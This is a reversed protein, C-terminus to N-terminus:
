KMFLLLMKVLYKQNFFSQKGIYKKYDVANSVLTVKIRKRLTEYKGSNNLLKLFTLKLVIQLM